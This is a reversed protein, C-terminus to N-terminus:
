PNALTKVLEQLQLTAERIDDVSAMGTGHVLANRLRRIREFEQVKEKPLLEQTLILKSTPALINSNSLGRFKAFQRFRQELSIWHSLFLGIAEHIESDGPEENQGQQINIQHSLRIEEYKQYRSKDEALIQDVIQEAVPRRETDANLVSIYPTIDRPTAMDLKSLLEFLLDVRGLASDGLPNKLIPAARDVLYAALDYHNSFPRDDASVRAEGAKQLLELSIEGAIVEGNLEDLIAYESPSLEGQLPKYVLDHEVEAWAHMLVSAVQIEVRAEAYRKQIDSLTSERLQVRYHSARYGSFRKEYAPKSGDPFEKPSGIVNFLSKILLDVQGREGPFYLAVRAGALDVIDTFIDDVCKYGKSTSRQLVKTELRTISKARSTVMSRIGATQLNAELLQGVLRAAQDYFDYEKRYRAIFDEIVGM